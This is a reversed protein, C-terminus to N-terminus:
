EGLGEAGQSRESVGGRGWDGILRGAVAARSGLGEARVGSAEGEVRVCGEQAGLADPGGGGAGELGPLVVPVSEEAVADGHPEVVGVSVGETVCPSM